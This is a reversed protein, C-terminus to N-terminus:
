KKAKELKKMNKALKKADKEVKKMLDKKTTKKTPTKSKKVKKVTKSASRKVAKVAKEVKAKVPLKAKESKKSSAKKTPTKSKKAVVKKTETKKKHVKNSIKNGKLFAMFQKGKKDPIDILLGMLHVQKAMGNKQVSVSRTEMGVVKGSCSQVEKALEALRKQAKEKSHLNLVLQFIM